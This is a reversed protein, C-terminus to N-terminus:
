GRPAVTGSCRGTVRREGDRSPLGARDLSPRTMVCSESTNAGATSAAAIVWGSVGGPAVGARGRLAAGLAHSRPHQADDIHVDIFHVDDRVAELFGRGARTRSTAMCASNCNQRPSGHLREHRHRPGRHAPDRRHADPSHTVNVLVDHARPTSASAPRMAREDPWAAWSFVTDDVAISGTLTRGQAPLPEDEVLGSPLSGSRQETVPEAQQLAMCVMFFMIALESACVERMEAELDPPFETWTTEDTPVWSGDVHLAYTGANVDIWLAASVGSREDGAAQIHQVFTGGEELLTENTATARFQGQVDDRGEWSRHGHEADSWPELLLTGAASSSEIRQHITGTVNGMGPSEMREQRTRTLTFSLQWREVGLWGADTVPQPRAVPVIAAAALAVAIWVLRRQM